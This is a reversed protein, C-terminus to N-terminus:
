KEAFLQAPTLKFYKSLRFIANCGLGKPIIGNEIYNLSKVSIGLMKAMKTKSLKNAVRLYKINKCFVLIQM